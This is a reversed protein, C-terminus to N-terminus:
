SVSQPPKLDFRVMMEMAVRLREELFWHDVLVVSNEYPHPLKLTQMDMCSEGFTWFCVIGDGDSHNAVCVRDFSKRHVDVSRRGAVVWFLDLLHRSSENTGSVVVVHRGAKAERLAEELMRTTRGTSRKFEQQYTVSFASTIRQIARSMQRKEEDGRWHGLQSDQYEAAYAHAYTRIAHRLRIHFPTFPNKM